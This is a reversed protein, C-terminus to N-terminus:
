AALRDREAETLQPTYGMCCVACCFCPIEPWEDGFVHETGDKLILKHKM